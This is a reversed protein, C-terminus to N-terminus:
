QYFRALYNTSTKIEVRYISDIVGIKVREARFYRVAEDNSKGSIDPEFQQMWQNMLGEAKNLKAQTELMNVKEKLTDMTRFQKKLAPLSKLLTDLKLQNATLKEQDEMVIDHFKMVEDRETKYNVSQKCAIVGALLFMATIVNKM